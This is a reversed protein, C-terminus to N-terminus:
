YNKLADFDCEFQTIIYKFGDYHKSLVNNIKNVASEFLIDRHKIDGDYVWQEGDIINSITNLPLHYIISWEIIYEANCYQYSYIKIDCASPVHFIYENDSVKKFDHLELLKM